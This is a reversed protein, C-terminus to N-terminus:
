GHVIECEAVATQLEELGTARGMEEVPNHIPGVNWRLEGGRRGSLVAQIEAIISLAIAAPQDGGIDLGVPAHLDHRLSDLGIEEFLRVTRKKPGLLGLYRPRFPLIQPVLMTDLPYNHTMMVVATDRDIRIDGLAGTPALTLVREAGPFREPKAYGSRVDAVTVDWGLGAALSVVPIVDHGAGFVVLRQAPGIYEMFVDAGAVHLLRCRRSQL